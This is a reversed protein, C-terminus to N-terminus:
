IPFYCAGLVTESRAKNKYSNFESCSKKKKKVSLDKWLNSPFSTLGNVLM